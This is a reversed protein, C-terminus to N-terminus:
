RETERRRRHWILLSPPHNAAGPSHSTGGAGAPRCGAPPWCSDKDSDARTIPYALSKGSSCSASMGACLLTVTCCASASPTPWLAKASGASTLSPRPCSGLALETLRCDSDNREECAGNQTPSCNQAPGVSRQQLRGVQNSQNIARVSREHFREKWALDPRTARGDQSFTQLQARKSAAAAASACMQLSSLQSRQNGVGRRQGDLGGRELDSNLNVPLRGDVLGAILPEENKVL